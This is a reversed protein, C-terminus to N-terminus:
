ATELAAIRRELAIARDQRGKVHIEDGDGYLTNMDHLAAFQQPALQIAQAQALKWIVQVPTGAAHQAALYIRFGEKDGGSHSANDVFRIYNKNASVGMYGDKAANAYTGYREVGKYHSCVCHMGNIDDPAHLMTNTIEFGIENGYSNLTETGDFSHAAWEVALEGTNWNMRGGYVTQGIQVAQVKGRFPEYASDSDAALRIMPYVMHDYTYANRVYINCRVIGPESLAFRDGPTYRREGNVYIWMQADTTFGSLVYEGAPLTTEGIVFFVTEGTSTGTLHISGDDNVTYAVGGRATSSATNPLLNKGSCALSLKEYGSIPRINDPSPDGSGSQKPTFVTELEEFMMGGVPKCQVPNGNAEFGDTLGQLIEKLGINEQARDRQAASLEQAADTRISSLAAADANAAAERASNAASVMEMRVDALDLIKVWYATNGLAIGAPVDKVAAYAASGDPGTVVDTVSYAQMSSHKGRPELKLNTLFTM